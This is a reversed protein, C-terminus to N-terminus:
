VSFWELVRVQSEALWRHSMSPSSKACVQKLQSGSTTRTSELVQSSSSEDCCLSFALALLEVQLCHLFLLRASISSRQLNCVQRYNCVM